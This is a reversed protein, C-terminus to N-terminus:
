GSSFGIERFVFEFGVSMVGRSSCHSAYCLRLSACFLILHCYRARTKQPATASMQSTIRKESGSFPNRM